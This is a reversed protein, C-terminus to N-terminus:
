PSSSRAVGAVVKKRLKKAYRSEESTLHSNTWALWNELVVRLERLLADREPQPVEVVKEKFLAGIERSRNVMFEAFTGPPLLDVFLKMMVPERKASSAITRRLNELESKGKETIAYTTGAGKVGSPISKVLGGDLLSRLLPYLTGAGPRWAGDTKEEITEIISYGIAPKDSILSLVYM